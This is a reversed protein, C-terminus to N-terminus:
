SEHLQCADITRTPPFKFCVLFLLTCDLFQARIKEATQKRRVGEDDPAITAKTGSGFTM